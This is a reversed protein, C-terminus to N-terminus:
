FQCDALSEGIAQACLASRRALQFLGPIARFPRHMTEPIVKWCEFRGSPGRVRNFDIPLDEDASDSVARICHFPRGHAQAWGAVGAAEMEVAQAGHNFLDQKERKIGVVRDLSALVGTHHPRVTAAPAAAFTKGSDLAVVETAIFVDGPQLAPDLAGCLGTSVVRDIQAHAAAHEAARAALVPGPGDAALLWQRGNWEGAWLFRLPSQVRRRGDLRSLFARLEFAEAAVVLITEVRGKLWERWVM